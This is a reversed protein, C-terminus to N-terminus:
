KASNRNLEALAANYDSRMGNSQALLNDDLPDPPWPEGPLRRDLHFELKLEPNSMNDRDLTFCM